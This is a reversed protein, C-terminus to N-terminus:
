VAARGDAHIRRVTVARTVAYQLLVMAVKSAIPFTAIFVSWARAGGALALGANALATAFMLAAWVYGFATVVDGSRRLAVEPMYRAMWGRKLMVAGVATYVLTPKFMIFRGDHTLLSAAGFVAVLALSMVQMADIPRRRVREYGMQALGAAFATLTALLASHSVAYLGVFALTSLLDGAIWRLAHLLPHGRPRDFAIPAAPLALATM